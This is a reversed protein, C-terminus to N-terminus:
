EIPIDPATCNHTENTRCREAEGKEVNKRNKIRDDLKGLL